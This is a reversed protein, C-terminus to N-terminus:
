SPADPVLSDLCPLVLSFPPVDDLVNQLHWLRTDPQSLRPFYELAPKMHAPFVPTRQDQHISAISLAGVVSFTVLTECYRTMGTLPPM